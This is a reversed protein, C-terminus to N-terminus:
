SRIIKENNDRCSQLGAKLSRMTEEMNPPTEISIEEDFEIEPYHQLDEM